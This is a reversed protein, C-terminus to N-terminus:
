FHGFSSEDIEDAVPRLARPAASPRAPLSHRVVSPKTIPTDSNGAKGTILATVQDQLSIAQSSVEEATASLEESAAANSNTAESMQHVAATIQELGSSQERSASAIEQVLGATKRISPVIEDLLTGAQEAMKVSNDAVSSIEQAAVQSREALKRVEAAVVAFGKGHEGARAAEIAANLALLNTQYTIEDIIGIKTAIERMALVTQEVAEGGESAYKSAQTAMGDTVNANESNQAVTASIEEVASSTEEVTAAQESANQALSQSAASIQESAATLEHVAYLINQMVGSVSRITLIAVLILLVSSVVLVALMTWTASNTAVEANSANETAGTINVDYIKEFSAQMTAGQKAVEPYIRYFEVFLEKQEAESRSKSLGDMVGDLKTEVARFAELQSLFEKWMVTEESTQPIAEYLERGEDFKKRIQERAKLLNAFNEHAQYDNEWIATSLGNLIVDNIAQNMTKLAIISPLQIANTTNIAQHAQVLGHWGLYGTLCTSLIAVLLLTILKTRLALNRFSTMGLAGSPKKEAQPKVNGPLDDTTVPKELKPPSAAAARSPQHKIPHPWDPSRDSGSPTATGAFSFGTEPPTEDASAKPACFATPAVVAEVNPPLAPSRTTPLIREQSRRNSALRILYVADLILAVQGDGLITSGSIVNLGRFLKGLPKIVAQLEGLLKDVVIGARSNGFQVIVVNEKTGGPPPPFEFVDRLRLFPLPEGRLNLLNHSVSQTTMDVCEVVSDLPIVYVLNHSQVQFGDIIALTLPLRIRTTTGQGPISHIDVEGRLSEINRHVVDMGVGRGSLNTVQEATSFGPEFILRYVEEDTLVHEAGILGREVAKRRIKDRNLGRGDDSVELVISGSEHFAHLRLTASPPKGVEARESPPEVGHDLSNRVIHMLPDGLKEVMSKDLETEAGTIVLEVQKGLEKAADRVVRPFRQFVEGIQVMRLNLAADRIDEVLCELSEAVEEFDRDRRRKALVNAAAGTIVLEGVLNILSDLRTVDVKIVKQEQARKDDNRKQQQLAAAVVVDPVIKEEVLLAGIPKHEAADRSQLDLIKELEYPTLAGGQLLIQGLMQPPEPLNEILEIYEAIKAQPPLIHIQADERVFEFAGEITMRDANSDLNIEFGLYCAEPDYNDLEPLHETIAHLHVIRGLTALYRIFSLPDM